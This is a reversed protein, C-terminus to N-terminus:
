KEPEDLRLTPDPRYLHYGPPALQEDEVLVQTTAPGESRKRLRLKRTRGPAPAAPRPELRETAPEEVVDTAPAGRLREKRLRVAVVLARAAALALAVAALILGLRGAFPILGLAGGAVWALMLLTESHAFASARVREPVREQIVADVTLKALGSGLATALCLM